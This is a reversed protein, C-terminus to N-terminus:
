LCNSTRRTPPAQNVRLRKTVSATLQEGAGAAVYRWGGQSEFGGDRLATVHCADNFVTVIPRGDEGRFCLVMVDPDILGEPGAQLEPPAVGYRTAIAGDPQRVGRIAGVREVPAMGAEVTAPRRAARARAAADAFAAEMRDLWAYSLFEWQFADVIEQTALDAAPASHNHSVNLLVRSPATHAARAIAARMRRDAKRTFGIHDAMALVVPGEDGELYVVRATLPAVVERVRKQLFPGYAEGVKPSIDACAYGALLGPANAGGSEGKAILRAVGPENAGAEATNGCPQNTTASKERTSSGLAPISFPKEAGSLCLATLLLGLSAKLEM